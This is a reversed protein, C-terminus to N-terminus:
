RVIEVSGPGTIRAKLPKRSSPLLVRILDGVRGSGSARGVGTVEIVATSVSVRVEDGSKVVPPVVVAADTLVEGAKIDRRAQAGVIEEMTPLRDLLVGDLEVDDVAVADAGLEEGRSLSRSSRVASGTVKLRAVVSGVRAGNATLIFRMARGLRAGPEPRAVLGPSPAPAVPSALRSGALDVVEVRVEGMRQQIAHEIAAPVPGTLAVSLALIHIM